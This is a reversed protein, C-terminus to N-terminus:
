AGAAKCGTGILYSTQYFRCAMRCLIIFPLIKRKGVTLVLNRCFGAQLRTVINFSSDLTGSNYHLCIVFDRYM